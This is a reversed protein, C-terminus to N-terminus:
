SKSKPQLLAPKSIACELAINVESISDRFLRTDNPSPDVDVSRESIRSVM